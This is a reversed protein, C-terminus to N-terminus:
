GVSNDNTMGNGMRDSRPQIPTQEPYEPLPILDIPQVTKVGAFIPINIDSLTYYGKARVTVSYESFPRATSMPDQSLSASPAPLAITPTRGSRDTFMLRVLGVGGPLVKKVAVVAGPVPYAGGATFVDFQLYGWSNDGTLSVWSISPTLGATSPISETSSTPLPFDPLIERENEAEAPISYVGGEPSGNLMVGRLSSGRSRQYATKDAQSFTGGMDPNAGMPAPNEYPTMRPQIMPNGPYVPPPNDEPRIVPHAPIGAISEIISEASPFRCECSVPLPLGMDTPKEAAFHSAGPVGPIPTGAIDRTMNSKGPMDSANQEPRSMQESPATNRNMPEAARNAQPATQMRPSSQPQMPMNQQPAPMSHEASGSQAQAQSTNQQSPQGSQQRPANDTQPASGSKRYLRMMEDKYRQAMNNLNFENGNM